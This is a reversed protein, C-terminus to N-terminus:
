PDSPLFLLCSFIIKNIVKFTLYLGELNITFLKKNSQKLLPAFIKATFTSGFIISKDKEESERRTTKASPRSTKAGKSHNGRKLSAVSKCLFFQRKIPLPM